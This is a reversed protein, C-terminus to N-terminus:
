KELGIKKLLAIFRPHSRIPDWTPDIKLELLWPTRDEAAKELWDLTESYLGAFAYNVAIRFPSQYKGQAIRKQRFENEKLLSGSFGAIEYAKRMEAMEEPSFMGDLSKLKDWARFAQAPMKKQYFIAGLLDYAIANNPDMSITKELRELARDFDRRAFSEAAFAFSIRVSLPDLERARELERHSEEFRGLDGLYEWYGLRVSVSNPGLRIAEKFEKEAEELKWEYQFQTYALTVHAEALDPDLAM